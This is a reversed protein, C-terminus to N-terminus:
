SFYPLASVNAAYAYTKAINAAEGDGVITEVFTPPRMAAAWRHPPPRSAAAGMTPSPSAAFMNNNTEM